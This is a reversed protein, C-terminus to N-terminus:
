RNSKPHTFKDICEANEVIDGSISRILEFFNNENFDEPVWFSIDKYCTPYKSYPKFQSIKGPTFQNIFRPDQTWFFRIDDINFLKM